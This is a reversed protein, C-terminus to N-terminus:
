RLGTAIGLSWRGQWVMFMKQQGRKQGAQRTKIGRKFGGIDTRLDGGRRRGCGGDGVQGREGYFDILPRTSRQYTTMRLRVAEARDDERQYLKGGCHDCSGPVDPPRATEHYVANCGSCTRRGRLRAVIVHAPLDYNVAATLARREWRLLNALAEAQIITRPFGDLLFGGRCRLCRSRERVMDLVTEDQVLEGRSMSEPATRMAESIQEAPLPKAARFVDGTSLHCASLRPGLLEALTGKGVEPTGLLIVRYVSETAAPLTACLADGGKLWAERETTDNM